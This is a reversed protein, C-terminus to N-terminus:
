AAKRTRKKLRNIRRRLVNIRARGEGGESATLKAQRLLNIKEKLERVNVTKVKKNGEDTIGKIEKIAAILEEKNMGHVGVIEGLSLAHERLEKATMRDLPKEKKEKREKKGM